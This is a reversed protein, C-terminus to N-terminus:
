GCFEGVRNWSSGSIHILGNAGVRRVHHAIDRILLYKDIRNQPVAVVVAGPRNDTLPIFISTHYGDKMMVTRANRFFIHSVDLLTKAETLRNWARDDGYRKLAKQAKTADVNSFERRYGLLSGDKVAVYIGRDEFPRMMSVLRGDPLLDRLLHEGLDENKEPIAVRCHEHLSIVMMALQGYVHALADLVEHDPLEVDIWRREIALAGNEIVHKDMLRNPINRRFTETSWVLNSPLWETKPNGLYSAILEARVQSLTDLDGQKEIKNRADKAWNVIPDQKFKEVFPGYWAEFDTIAAKHSQLIFTVSRSTTICNQLAILFAGPEFYAQHAQGWNAKLHALRRVVATLAEELDRSPKNM